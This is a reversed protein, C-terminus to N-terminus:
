TCVPSTNTPITGVQTPWCSSADSTDAIAALSM